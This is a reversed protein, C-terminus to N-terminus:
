RFPANSAFEQSNTNKMDMDLKSIEKLVYHGVGTHAVGHGLPHDTRLGVKGIVVIRGEVKRGKDPLDGSKRSQGVKWSLWGLMRWCSRVM